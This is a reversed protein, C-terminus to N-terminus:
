VSKWCYRADLGSSSSARFSAANRLVLYSLVLYSLALYSLALYSFVLYSFLAFRDGQKKHLLAKM